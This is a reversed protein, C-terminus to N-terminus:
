SLYLTMDYWCAGGHSSVSKGEDLYGFQEYFPILKKKCTLTIIAKHSEQAQEIFKKMLLAAIGQHQVSPDVALGFIMQYPAADDHLEISRYLEDTLKKQKAVSGNIFGIIKNEQEAVLFSRKFAMIREILSKYDAAEKEPFCTSEIDAIRELDNLSAPRVIIEM